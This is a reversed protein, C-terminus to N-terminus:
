GLIKKSEKCNEPEGDKEEKGTKTYIKFVKGKLKETDQDYGTYVKQARLGTEIFEYKQNENIIKRIWEYKQREM